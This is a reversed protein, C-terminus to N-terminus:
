TCVYCGHQEAPMACILDLARHVIFELLHVRLEKAHCLMASCLLRGSEEFLYDEEIVWWAWGQRQRLFNRRFLFCSM